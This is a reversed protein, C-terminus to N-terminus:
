REIDRAPVRLFDEVHLEHSLIHWFAECFRRLSVLAALSLQTPRFKRFSHHFPVVEYLVHAVPRLSTPAQGPLHKVLLRDGSKVLHRVFDFAIQVGQKFLLV